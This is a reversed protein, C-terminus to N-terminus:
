KKQLKHLLDFTDIKNDWYELIVDKNQEIWEFLDTIQNVTFSGKDGKVIKPNDDVTVIIYNDERFDAKLMPQTNSFGGSVSVWVTLELRTYKPVLETLYWSLWETGDTNWTEEAMRVLGWCVVSKLNNDISCDEVFMKWYKRYETPELDAMEFKSYDNNSFSKNLVSMFNVFEDENAQAEESFRRNEKALRKMWWVGSDSIITRYAFVFIPVCFNRWPDCLKRYEEALTRLVEISDKDEAARALEATRGKVIM